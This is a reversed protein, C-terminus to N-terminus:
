YKTRLSLVAQGSQWLYLFVIGSQQDETFFYSNGSTLVVPICEIIVPQEQTMDKFKVSHRLCIPFSHLCCIVTSALCLNLLKLRM